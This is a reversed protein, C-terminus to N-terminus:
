CDPLRPLLLLCAFAALQLALAAVARPVLGQELFPAVAAIGGATAAWSLARREATRIGALVRWRRAKRVQRCCALLRQRGQSPNGSAGGWILLLSRVDAAALRRGDIVDDPIRCASVDRPVPRTDPLRRAWARDAPFGAHPCPGLADPSGARSGRDDGAAESRSRSRPSREGRIRRARTRGGGTEDSAGLPQTRSRRAVFPLAHATADIGCPARPDTRASRPACCPATPVPPPCGGRVTRRVAPLRGDGAM